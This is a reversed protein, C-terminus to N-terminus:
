LVVINEIGATDTSTLKHKTTNGCNDNKITLALPSLYQNHSCSNRIHILLSWHSVKKEASSTGENWLILTHLIILYKLTLLNREKVPVTWLVLCFGWIHNICTTELMKYKIGSKFLMATWLYCKSVNQSCTSIFNLHGQHM